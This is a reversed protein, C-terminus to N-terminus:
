RAQVRARRLSEMVPPLTARAFEESLKETAAGERTVPVLIRVLAGIPIEARFRKLLQVGQFRVLNPTSYDGDTFFYTAMLQQGDKVMLARTAPVNRDGVPLVAEGQSVVQWGDGVMCFGPTHISRKRHGAIVALEAAEGRASQYRRVMVADPQLLSLEAPSLQADATKWDRFPLRLGQLFDPGGTTASEIRRGWFSGALALLLVGNVALLRYRSLLM